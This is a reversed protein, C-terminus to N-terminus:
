GKSDLLRGQLDRQLRHIELFTEPHEALARMLAERHQPNAALTATLEAQVADFDLERLAALALVFHSRSASPM